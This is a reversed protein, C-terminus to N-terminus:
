CSLNLFPEAGASEQARAIRVYAAGPAGEISGELELVTAAALVAAAEIGTASVLEDLPARRRRACGAARRCAADRQRVPADGGAPAPPELRNGRARRRRQAGADRRRSDAGPLGCRATPRRRGPRGAGPSPRRGLSATNLAGSRAPAEVVVVADALAAVGREAGLVAVPSGPPRAPVALAGGGGAALMRRALAQNRRPFFQRHGGGLVGITPAGAALAGEHARRRDGPGFGLRHLLRSTGFRRGARPRAAQGLSTAARTGVIAVCPRALGALTGACWLGAGAM